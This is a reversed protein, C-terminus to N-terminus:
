KHTKLWESWAPAGPQLPKTKAYEYFQMLFHKRDQAAAREWDLNKTVDLLEIDGGALESQRKTIDVLTLQGVNHLIDWLVLFTTTRGRGAHCHFHVWDDKPLNRATNIFLDVETDTPRLHDTVMLRVYHVGAQEVFQKETLLNTVAVLEPNPNDAKYAAEDSILANGATKVGSLLRAELALVQEDSLDKNAWDRDGMWSIPVGDNIYGHSEQRLDIITIPGAKGGDQARVASIRQLILDLGRSDFSASGSAQLSVLGSQNIDGNTNGQLDCCTRFNRLHETETHQDFILTAPQPSIPSAALTSRGSQVLEAANLQVAAPFLIFVAAWALPCRWSFKTGRTIM